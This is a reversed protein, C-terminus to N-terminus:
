AVVTTCTTTNCLVGREATCDFAVLGATVVADCTWCVCPKSVQIGMVFSSRGLEGLALNGSLSLKRTQSQLAQDAMDCESGDSDFEETAADVAARAALCVSELQSPEEQMGVLQRSAVLGIEALTLGAAACKTLLLTAVQLYVDILCHSTAMLSDVTKVVLCYSLRLYQPNQLISFIM